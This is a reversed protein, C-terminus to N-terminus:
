RKEGPKFLLAAVLGFVVAAAIGGASSTLGGAFVGLWGKEAMCDAMEHILTENIHDGFTNWSNWGLPPTSALM